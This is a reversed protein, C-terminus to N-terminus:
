ERLPSYIRLRRGPPPTTLNAMEADAENLGGYIVVTLYFSESISRGSFERFGGPSCLPDGSTAETGRSGTEKDRCSEWPVRGALIM